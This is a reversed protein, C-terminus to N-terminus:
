KINGVLLLIAEDLEMGFGDSKREFLGESSKSVVGRGGGGGILVKGTVVDLGLIAM